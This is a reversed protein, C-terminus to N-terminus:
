VALTRNVAVLVAVQDNGFLLVSHFNCRGSTIKIGSCCHLISVHLESIASLLNGFSTSFDNMFKLLSFFGRDVSFPLTFM